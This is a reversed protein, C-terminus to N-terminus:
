ETYGLPKIDGQLKALNQPIPLSFMKNESTHPTAADLCTVRLYTESDARLMDLVIETDTFESGRIESRSYIGTDLLDAIFNPRRETEQVLQRAAYSILATTFFATNNHLCKEAFKEYNDEGKVDEISDLFVAHLTEKNLDSQDLLLALEQADFDPSLLSVVRFGFGNVGLRSEVVAKVEEDPIRSVETYSVQRTTLAETVYQYLFRYLIKVEEGTSIYLIVPKHGSVTEEVSTQPTNCLAMQAALSLLFTTSYSHVPGAITVADGRNFGRTAQNLKSWGYRYQKEM